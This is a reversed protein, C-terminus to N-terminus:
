ESAFVITIERVIVRRDIRRNTKRTGVRAFGLESVWSCTTPILGCIPPSWLVCVCVASHVGNIITILISPVLVSVRRHHQYRFDGDANSYDHGIHIPHQVGYQVM